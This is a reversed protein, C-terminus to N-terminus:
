CNKLIPFKKPVTSTKLDHYDVCFRWHRDKKKVLIMRSAFPNVRPKIIGPRLMEDILREIEEKHTDPYKFPCVNVSGNDQKLQIMHDVKRTSPLNDPKNFEDEYKALLHDNNPNSTDIDINSSQLRQEKFEILFGQDKEM